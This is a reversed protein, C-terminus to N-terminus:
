NAKPTFLYFDGYTRTVEIESVQSLGAIEGNESLIYGYRIYATIPRGNEDHTYTYTCTITKDYDVTQTIVASVLKNESDYTYDAKMYLEPTLDPLRFITNEVCIVNRNSDYTYAYEGNDIDACEIKTLRNNSDYSFTMAVGAGSSSITQINLFNGNNDYTPLILLSQGKTTNWMSDEDYVDGIISIQSIRGNEDYSLKAYDNYRCVIQLPDHDMPDFVFSPYKDEKGYINWQVCSVSGDQQYEWSLYKEITEKDGSAMIISYNEDLLVDKIMTFQDLLEQRNQNVGYNTGWATGIWKDVSELSLLENYYMGIAESGYYTKGGGSYIIDDTNECTTLTEVIKAYRTLANKESNNPATTPINDQNDNDTGPNGSPSTPASTPESTSTNNDKKDCAAFSLIIGICVLLSILKKM